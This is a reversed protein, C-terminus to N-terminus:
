RRKGSGLINHNARILRRDGKSQEGPTRGMKDATGGHIIGRGRGVSSGPKSAM